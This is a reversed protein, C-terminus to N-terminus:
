MNRERIIQSFKYGAWGPYEVSYVERGQKVYVTSESEYFIRFYLSTIGFTSRVKPLEKLSVISNINFCAVALSGPSSLRYVSQSRAPHGLPRVLGPLTLSKRKEIDVLGARHGV